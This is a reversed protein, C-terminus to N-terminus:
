DLGMILKIPIVKPILIECRKAAKLRAQIGPDKWDTRTYIVQLDLLDVMEAAPKPLADSRNAVRDCIKVGESLLVEPSIRLFKSEDIRGERTALYEMPHEDFFCLHVFADMGSRRDADLSWDNGGAVRIINRERLIEMSLLGHERISPLNRKDTFHFFTRNNKSLIEVLKEINNM